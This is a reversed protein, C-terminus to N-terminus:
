AAPGAASMRGPAATARELLDELREAVQSWRYCREAKRRGRMGIARAQRPNSLLREIANALSVDDGPPVLLGTEGDDVIEPVAEVSTGVCPVGCAMADLFAIGFAERLTPLVFVTAKRFLAPLEAAPLYGLHTAGEPLALNETPGVVLLRLKPRRRRIRRFARVLVPGGKLDFRTGVFLLTEGDDERVPAEPFVNAGAGVVEVREPRVGYDRVLSRKVRESYTGIAAAGLYVARERMRWGPGYDLPAPLSASPEAPRRMALDRTNDLLLVYPFRPPDGPAFLAGAQLVVDPATRAAALLRGANRSHLDFAFGTNWRHHLASRGFRLAALGLNIAADTSLRLRGKGDRHEVPGVVEIPDIRHGRAALHNTVQGTVGSLVGYNVFAVNVFAIM